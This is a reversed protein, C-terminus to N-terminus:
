FPAVSACHCLTVQELDCLQYSAPEPNTNLDGPSVTRIGNDVGNHDKRQRGQRCWIRVLHDSELDQAGERDRRASAPLLMCLSPLINPSHLLHTDEPSPSSTGWGMFRVFVSGPSRNQPSKCGRHRLCVCECM